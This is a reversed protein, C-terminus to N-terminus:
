TQVKGLLELEGDGGVWGDEHLRGVGKRPWQVGDWNVLVALTHKVIFALQGDDNAPVAFVGGSVVPGVVDQAVSHTVVDARAVVLQRCVHRPALESVGLAEVLERGNTGADRAFFNDAIRLLQSVPRLDISLDPLLRLIM